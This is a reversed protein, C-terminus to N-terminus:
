VYSDVYGGQGFCVCYGGQCPDDGRCAHGCAGCNLPDDQLCVGSCCVGSCCVGSCCAGGSGCALGDVAGDCARDAKEEEKAAQDAAKEEEKAAKDAEKDPSPTAVSTTTGLTAVGGGVAVAALSRLTARRSLTHALARTLHDFRQDDM